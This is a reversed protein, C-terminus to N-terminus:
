KLYISRTTEGVTLCSSPKMSNQLHIKLTPAASLLGTLESLKPVKPDDFFLKVNVTDHCTIKNNNIM